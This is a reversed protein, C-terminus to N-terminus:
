KVNMSKLKTGKKYGGEAYTLAEKKNKMSLYNNNKLNYEMATANNKFQYLEGSPLQVITPFVFWNGNADVEAAMRHTSISGDKNKIFPYSDPDKIRALFEPEAKDPM